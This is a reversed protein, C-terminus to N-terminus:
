LFHTPHCLRAGSSGGTVQSESYSRAPWTAGGFSPGRDPPWISYQEEHNAVVKYIRTDDRDTDLRNM